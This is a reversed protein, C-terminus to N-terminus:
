SNENSVESGCMLLDICHELGKKFDSMNENVENCLVGAVKMLGDAVPNKEMNTYYQKLREFKSNHRKESLIVKELDTRIFKLIFDADKENLTINVKGGFSATEGRSEISSISM